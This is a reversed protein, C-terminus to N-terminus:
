IPKDQGRSASARASREPTEYQAINKNLSAILADFGQSELISTYDARKLSLDSVGDAIVNIILWREGEQQLVYDLKVVEGNAKVLETRILLRDRKLKEESVRRFKEGSYGDFRSAYTATSLKIFTDTFLSQQRDDLKNWHRGLVVKAIAPFDFLKSVVPYLAQNRGSYGLENAKKMTALLTAHLEDVIAAPALTEAAPSPIPLLLFIVAVLRILKLLEM